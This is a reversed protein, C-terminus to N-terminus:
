RNWCWYNKAGMDNLLDALDIIEPEKAVNTLITTGKALCAAMMINETGTVTVGDFKIKTGVLRDAM